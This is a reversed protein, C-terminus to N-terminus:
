LIKILTEAIFEVQSEELGPHVPLSFVEKAAKETKPLHYSGFNEKYFPMLHIPNIYYVAAGVGNKRLSEVIRDREKESSDKIKVTYLNWSSTMCESDAPLELQTEKSLLKTLKKANKTRKAVFNPLKKLQILGIAAQIESMRYNYGLMLSSYKTKEGHTRLMSLSEAMDDNNTTIIGGEGTTMNKSAYFSWCAANALSGIPKGSYRAGHAQAADEIVALNRSLAIECIPKLDAPLGFLDVPLIIKTKNTIKEEIEKPNINFSLPDIDAFVPIGGAIVVAEATAVFTFSPLIVEDGPKIGASVLALHLASTGTNVAVAHSVNVFKAFEQEFATVKPGTGLASTLLGNKLVDTVARIEEEGIIPLNISIM